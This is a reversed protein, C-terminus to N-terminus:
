SSGLAEKVKEIAAAETPQVGGGKAEAVKEAAGLVLERYPGVEDPAKAQLTAVASRLSELTEAELKDPSTMLGFGTGHASGLDRVLTSTSTSRQEGLFKALAGVEGFSDTFDRDAVSVLMGAGMVGKHLADWEPESFDQKTAM